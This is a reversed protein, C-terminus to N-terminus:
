SEATVGFRESYFALAERREAADLGLQALDYVRAVMGLDDAMFEDFHMDITRDAPLADREEACRRLMRQLRDAWYTGMGEVDIRDRTLRSTHAIM